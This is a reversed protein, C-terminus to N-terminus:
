KLLRMQLVLITKHTELPHQTYNMILSNYLILLEKASIILRNEKLICKVIIASDKETTLCLGWFMCKGYYNMSILRECRNFDFLASPHLLLFSKDGFRIGSGSVRLAGSNLM